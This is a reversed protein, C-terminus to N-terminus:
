QKAIRKRLRNLEIITEPSDKLECLPVLDSIISEWDLREGQRILIGKIDLWDQERATLDVDETLRPEGWRQVALGGIICNAWSKSDLFRQLEAAVQVLRTM